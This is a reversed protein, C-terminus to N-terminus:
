WRRQTRNGGPCPDAHSVGILNHHLLIEEDVQTEGVGNHAILLHLDSSDEIVVPLCLIELHAELTVPMIPLKSPPDM